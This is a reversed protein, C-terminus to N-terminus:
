YRVMGKRGDCPRGEPPDEDLGTFLIEKDVKLKIGLTTAVLVDDHGNCKRSLQAAFSTSSSEHPCLQAAFSTPSSEHPRADRPLSLVNSHQRVCCLQDAM